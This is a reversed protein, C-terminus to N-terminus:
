VKKRTNGLFEIMIRVLQFSTCTAHHSDTHLENHKMEWFYRAFPIFGDRRMAALAYMAPSVLTNLITRCDLLVSRFVGTTAQPITLEVSYFYYKWCDCLLLLIMKFSHGMQGGTQRRSNVLLPLLPIQIKLHVTGINM